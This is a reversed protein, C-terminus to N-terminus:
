HDQNDHCFNSIYKTTSHGKCVIAPPSKLNEINVSLNNEHGIGIGFECICNLRTLIIGIWLRFQVTALVIIKPGYM